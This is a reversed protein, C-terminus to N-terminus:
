KFVGEDRNDLSFFPLYVITTSRYRLIESEEDSREESHCVARM